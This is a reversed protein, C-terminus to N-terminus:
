THKNENKLIEYIQDLYGKAQGMHEFEGILLFGANKSVGFRAFVTVNRTSEMWFCICSHLDVLNNNQTKFWLM